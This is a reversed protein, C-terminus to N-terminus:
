VMCTTAVRSLSSAPACSVRCRQEPQEESRANVDGVRDSVALNMELELGTPGVKVRKVRRLTTAIRRFVSEKTCRPCAVTAIFEFTSSRRDIEVCEISFKYKVIKSCSPCPLNEFEFPLHEEIAMCANNCGPVSCTGAGRTTWRGHVNKAYSINVQAVRTNGYRVSRSGHVHCLGYTCVLEGNNATHLVRAIPGYLLARINFPQRRSTTV